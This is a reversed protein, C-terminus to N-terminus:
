AAFPLAVVLLMCCVSAAPGKVSRRSYDVGSTKREPGSEEPLDRAWMLSTLVRGRRTRDPEVFAAPSKGNGLAARCERPLLTLGHM